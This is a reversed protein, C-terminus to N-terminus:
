GSCAKADRDIEPKIRCQDGKYRIKIVAKEIEEKLKMWKEYWRHDVREVFRHCPKCVWVGRELCSDDWHHYEIRKPTKGCLECTERWTRKNGSLTRGGSSVRHNRNWDRIRDRNRECYAKVEDKNEQYYRRNRERFKERNKMYYLRNLQRIQERHQSRYKAQRKLIKDRNALYYAKQYERKNFMAKTM